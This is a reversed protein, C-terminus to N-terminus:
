SPSSAAEVKATIGTADRHGFRSDALDIKRLGRSKSTPEPYHAWGPITLCLIGSHLATWHRCSHPVVNQNDTGFENNTGDFCIIINLAM